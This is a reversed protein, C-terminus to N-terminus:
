NSGMARDYADSMAERETKPTQKGANSKVNVSKAKIAAKTRKPDGQAPTKPELAPKPSARLGRADVAMEYATSLIDKESAGYGALQQAAPIFAPLDAEVEAWHESKAAFDSIEGIARQEAMQATVEQRVNAPNQMQALEAKLQRNEQELAVTRQNQLEPQPLGMRQYLQPLFNQQEALQMVTGVPDRMLSARTSALAFADQAVQEPKMNALEPFTQVARQIEGMIPQLAASQRGMQALKGSMERHSSAIAQQAGEPLDGWVERVGKPVYSPATGSQAQPEAKQEGTEDGEQAEQAGEQAEPEAEAAAQAEQEGEAAERAKFRGLEDREREDTGGGADEGTDETMLRDYIDGMDDTETRPAEQPTPAEAVETIQENQDM